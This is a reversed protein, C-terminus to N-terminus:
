PGRQLKLAHGVTTKTDVAYQSSSVKWLGDIYELVSFCPTAPGIRDNGAMMHATHTAEIRTTTRYEAVECIRVLNTVGKIAYDQTVKKFVRLLDDNNELVTKDKITSIFHPVHFRSAFTDFDAALLAKGTIELIM